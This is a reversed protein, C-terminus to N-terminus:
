LDAVLDKVRIGLAKAIRMLGDMSITKTGRELESIYKPHFDAEEALKEQSLDLSKRRARIAEGLVRRYLPHSAV